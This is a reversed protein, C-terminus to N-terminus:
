KPCSKGKHDMNVLMHCFYLFLCMVFTQALGSNIVKLWVTETLSEFLQQFLSPVKKQLFCEVM